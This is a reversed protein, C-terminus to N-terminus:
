LFKPWGYNNSNASLDLVKINAKKWISFDIQSHPTVILGLDVESTLAVSQQGEYVEVFPDHWSVVAGAIKLENILKLAPSERLDSINPKYTIGAIQIRKGSVDGNLHSQIRGRVVAPMLSNVENALNIFKADVGANEASFALYSPDVPICHGGVGISPFFPMFGFPKTAAAEITEHTSFDMVDAVISLENVLAINVQRFTNEFLKAADARKIPEVMLDLPLKWEGARKKQLMSANFGLLVMKNSVMTDEIQNRIDPTLIIESMQEDTPPCVIPYHKNLLNIRSYVKTWRSVDGRPRSLELYVSMRLFNPPVYHINDKVISETWLREFLPKELLTIDAVGTFDAFVKFTGLHMGPKVEVLKYGAKAIKDALEMAHIQPTLSFFDYDPIDKVPDYFRDAKPLLNNIATGGYCMVKSQTLFDHVISLVTIVAINSANEKDLKDQAIQAIREIAEM